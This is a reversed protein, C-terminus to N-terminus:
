RERIVHAYMPLHIRVERIRVCQETVLINRRFLHVFCHSTESTSNAEIRSVVVGPLPAYNFSYATIEKHYGIIVTKYQFITPITNSHYKVLLLLELKSLDVITLCEGYVRAAGHKETVNAYYTYDLSDCFLQPPKRSKSHKKGWTWCANFRLSVARPVKFRAISKSLRFGSHLNWRADIRNAPSRNSSASSSSASSFSM